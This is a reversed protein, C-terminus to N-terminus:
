PLVLSLTVGEFPTAEFSFTFDFSWHYLGDDEKDKFFSGCVVASTAALVSFDGAKLHPLYILDILDNSDNDM